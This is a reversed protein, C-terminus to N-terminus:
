QDRGKEDEGSNEESVPLIHAHVKSIRHEEMQTVTFEVNAVTVMPHEDEDPIRGLIDIIM